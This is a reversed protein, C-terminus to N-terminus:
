RRQSTRKEKAQEESIISQEARAAWRMLNDLNKETQKVAILYKLATRKDGQALLKMAQQNYNLIKEEAVQEAKKILKVKGIRGIEDNSLKILLQGHADTIEEEKEISYIKNLLVQDQPSLKLAKGIHANIDKILTSAKSVDGREVAAIAEAELEEAQETLKEELIEEKLAKKETSKAAEEEGLVTKRIGEGTRPTITYVSGIIGVIFLIGGIVAMVISWSGWTGFYNLLLGMILFLLGSFMITGWVGRDKSLFGKVVSVFFMAMFLTILPTVFAVLLGFFDISRIWVYFATAFGFVVGLGAGLIRPDIQATFRQPLTQLLVYMLIFVFIFAFIYNLGSYGIATFATCFAKDITNEQDGECKDTLKEEINSAYGTILNESVAAGNVPSELHIVPAIIFTFVVLILALYIPLKSISKRTAM